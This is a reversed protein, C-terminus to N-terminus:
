RAKRKQARAKRNARRIRGMARAADAAVELALEHAAEQMLQTMTCRRVECAAELFARERQSPRWSIPQDSRADPPLTSRNRM